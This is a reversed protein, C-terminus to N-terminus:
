DSTTGLSAFLSRNGERELIVWEVRRCDPLPGIQILLKAGAKTCHELFDLQDPHQAALMKTSLTLAAAHLTKFDETFDSTM